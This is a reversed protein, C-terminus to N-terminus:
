RIIPLLYRSFPATSLDTDMTGGYKLEVQKKSVHKFMEPASNTRSIIIKKQINKDFTKIVGYLMNVTWPANVVYMRFLKTRYNKELTGGLDKLANLPLKLIGVNCLDVLFIWNEVKGPIFLNEKIYEAVYVTLQQLNESTLQMEIMRGTNVVVIPRYKEDRGCIYM